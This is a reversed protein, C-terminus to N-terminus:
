DIYEWHLGYATKSRGKCCHCISMCKRSKGMYENADSICDFIQGTEICRVKKSNHNKKGKQAESIKKKHEETFKKGKRTESMEKKTEETHHKGYMPNNEGIFKGKLKKSLREKKTGYNCNYKNTCWELNSIHNNSPNEDKHNIFPLNEPNEIFAEAVLRHVSKMQEKGNSCLTVMKYYIGASNKNHKSQKLIKVFGKQNLYNLSRVNGLNSVQYKGEYGIIDKWIEKM